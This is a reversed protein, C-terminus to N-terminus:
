GLTFFFTAGEGVTAAAWLRGGHRKIIRDVTALGVGTGEFDSQEHLRQFPTFLKHAYAMDFGAGNDRVYYAVVGDHLETGLEIRAAARKGTFKWANGVLNDLAARLLRPDGRAALHDAAVLEVTRAPERRRLEEVVDRAIQALDVDCRHLEVRTISALGLLDDILLGMRQSGARVRALFHQAQPDLKASYQEILIESFGDIARLPGRLDHSVSYSFAELEDNAAALEAVRAELVAASEARAQLLAREHEAALARVLQRAFLGLGAGLLLVLAFGLARAPPGAPLAAVLAAVFASAAVPVVLALRAHRASDLPSTM